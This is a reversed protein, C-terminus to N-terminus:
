RRINIKKNYMKKAIKHLDDMPSSQLVAIIDKRELLEGAENLCNKDRAEKIVKPISYHKVYQFVIWQKIEKVEYDETIKIFEDLEDRLSIAQQLSMVKKM